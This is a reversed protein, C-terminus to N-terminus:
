FANPSMREGTPNLCSSGDPRLGDDGSIASMDAYRRRVTTAWTGTETCESQVAAVYHSAAAALSLDWLLQEGRQRRTRKYRNFIRDIRGADPRRVAM